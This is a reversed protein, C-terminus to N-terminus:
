RGDSEVFALQRELDAVTRRYFALTEETQDIIWCNSAVGTKFIGLEMRKIGQRFSGIDRELHVMLAKRFQDM